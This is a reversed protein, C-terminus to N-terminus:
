VEMEKKLEEKGRTLRMKVASESKKIITSIEKISYGEYYYLYLTSRYIPTISKLADILDVEKKKTNSKNILLDNNTSVKKWASKLLDKSENICVRYLWKKIVENEKNLIKKNMYLKYFTKQVIDEADHKNIVYSITCRYIDKNYLLFLEDFRKNM